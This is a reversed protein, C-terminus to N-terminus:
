KIANLIAERFYIIDLQNEKKNLDIKDKQDEPVFQMVNSLIAFYFNKAPIYGSESRIAAAGGAHHYMVSGDDLESIFLGYGIHTKHGAKEPTQIYKTTMLRYSAASLLKGDHLAQNWKIMDRVNSIVGGDAFPVLIFDIKAPKFEPIKNGTPIVFYRHPYPMSDQDNQIKLAEELSALHTSRMGLPEFLEKQFFYELNHGTIKEIILGLLVFNTNTYKYKEGPKFEVPKEAAFCAIEKNIEKHEKSSDIDMVMAYEALGSTHTLLHHLTIKSAWAPAKNGSWLGCEDDLYKIVKDKVNLAKREQLKLIAVATMPKTASAIPMKQAPKMQNGHRDYAGHAGLVLLDKDDAFMFAANLFRTALYENTADQVKNKLSALATNCSLVLAIVLVYHKKM